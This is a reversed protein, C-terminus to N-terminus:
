ELEWRFFGFIFLAVGVLVIVMIIRGILEDYRGDWRGM